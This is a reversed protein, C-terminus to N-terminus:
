RSSGSSSPLPALAPQAFGHVVRAHAHPLCRRPEASRGAALDGGPVARLGFTALDSREVAAHRVSAHREPPGDAISRYLAPPDSGYVWVNDMLAPGSAGGGQAHCGACNYWTWLRKGAALAYANREDHAVRANTSADDSPAILAADFTHEFDRQERECGALIMAGVVAAVLAPCAHRRHPRALPSDHERFRSCM